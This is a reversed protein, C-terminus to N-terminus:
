AAQLLSAANRWYMKERDSEPFDQLLDHFQEMRYSVYYDDGFGADTGLTIREPGLQEIMLRMVAPPIGSGCLCISCNPYRQVAAVAEVWLDMGGGHGLIVKLQPFKGSLYAVQLPTSFPPTGDHFLIPVDLHIAERAIASMCDDLPSIGQWWPHIKVGRFGLEQVCRRIEMPSFDDRPNVTCFPVLRGNSEIAQRWLENNGAVADYFFGDITFVVAKDIGCLDMTQIFDGTAKRGYGFAKGPLHSHMDIVKM